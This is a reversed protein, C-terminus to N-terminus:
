MCTKLYFISISEENNLCLFNKLKTAEWCSFPRKGNIKDSFSNVSIDLFGACEKYNKKNAVIAGKLKLMEM